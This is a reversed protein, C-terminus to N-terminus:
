KAERDWYRHSGNHPGSDNWTKGGYKKETGSLGGRIDRLFVGVGQDEGM